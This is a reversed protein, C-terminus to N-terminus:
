KKKSEAAKKALRKQTLEIYTKVGPSQLKIIVLIGFIPGFMAGVFQTGAAVYGMAIGASSGNRIMTAAVIQVISCLIPFVCFAILVAQSVGRKQLETTFDELTFSLVISVISVLLTLIAPIVLLQFVTRAPGTFEDGKEARMLDAYSSLQGAHHGKEVSKTAEPHMAKLWDKDSLEDLISQPRVTGEPLPVMVLAGCKCQTQTGALKGPLVQTEKCRPCTFLVTAPLNSAAPNPIAIQAGCPCKAASGALSDPAHHRRSCKPCTVVIPM